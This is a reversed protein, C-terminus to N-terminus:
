MMGKKKREFYDRTMSLVVPLLLATAILNPAAMLGNFIDCFNIIADFWASGKYTAMLAGVFAVMVFAVKYPTVLKRGALYEASKEGYYSWALATSFAFFFIAITVLYGSLDHLGLSFAHAALPAGTLLNGAADRVETKWAGTVIIVVATMTCVLLTDIFPGLMAVLGERVPEKTRAAAHAIPASGLGAENSFIGRRIGWSLAFWVTAGAFGGAASTGSFASKVILSLAAPVEPAHLAMVAIAGAVYLVFMFPV